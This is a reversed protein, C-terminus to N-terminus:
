AHSNVVLVSDVNLIYGLLIAAFVDRNVIKDFLISLICYIECLAHKTCM